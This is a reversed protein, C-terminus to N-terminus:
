FRAKKLAKLFKVISILFPVWAVGVIAADDLQGFVPVVDPIFDFPFWLYVISLIAFLTWAVPWHPKRPAQSQAEGTKDENQPSLPAPTLNTM